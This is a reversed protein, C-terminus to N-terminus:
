LSKVQITEIPRFGRKALIKNVSVDRMGKLTGMEIHNVAMSDAWKEFADLLAIGSGAAGENWWFVERAVTYNENLPCPYVAGAIMGSAPEGSIFLCGDPRQILLRCLHRITGSSYGMLVAWPSADFFRRGMQVVGEIDAETAERVTM